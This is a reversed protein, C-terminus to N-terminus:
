ISCRPLVCRPLVKAVWARDFHDKFTFARIHQAHVSLDHPQAFSLHQSGYWLDRQGGIFGYVCRFPVAPVQELFRSALSAAVRQNKTTSFFGEIREVFFQKHFMLFPSIVISTPGRLGFAIGSFTGQSTSPPSRSPRFTLERSVSVWSRGAGRPEPSGKPSSDKPYPPLSVWLGV